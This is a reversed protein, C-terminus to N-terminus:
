ASPTGEGPSRPGAGRFWRALMWTTIPLFVAYGLVGIRQLRMDGGLPGVMGALCLGGTAVLWARLRRGQDRPPVAGAACLLALGLLVDWAVLEVAYPTSPWVLGPRAMARGATLEVVHVGTTVGTFLAGFLLALTAWPRRDDPAAAQLAVFVGSMPLASLITLVEMAALIPDTIPRDLGHRAIGAALVVAYAMGVATVARGAHFGLRRATTTRTM